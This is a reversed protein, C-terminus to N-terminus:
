EAVFKMGPMSRWFPHIIPPHVGRTFKEPGHFVPRAHNESLMSRWYLLVTIGSSGLPCSLM